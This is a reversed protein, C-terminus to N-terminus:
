YQMMLAIRTSPLLELPYPLAVKKSYRSLSSSLTVRDVRSGTGGLFAVCTVFRLSVRSLLRNRVQCVNQLTDAPYSTIGGTIAIIVQKTKM